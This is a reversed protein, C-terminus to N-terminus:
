GMNLIFQQKIRKLQQISGPNLISAILLKIIQLQTTSKILVPPFLCIAQWLLRYAEAINKKGDFETCNSYSGLYLGSCYLYHSCLSQKKLHQLNNPTTQYIKEVLIEGGKKLRQIQSSMSNATHRYIVHYEPVVVFSWQAALRLYYDWDENSLPTADFEGVSEIAERRALINSGNAIFNHTLLQPYVNGTFYVHPLKVYRVSKEESYFNITWSYAVGADPAKELAAVQAELKEPTWLDDHDLFTIYKGQAQAIGCNRAKAVGGNECPFLKIRNDTIERVRQCTNDTSGDDVVIIELDALTQQLVSNITEAITNESNYAPIIVSVLPM